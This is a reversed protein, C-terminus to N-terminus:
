SGAINEEIAVKHNSKGIKIQSIIIASFILICGVIGRSNLRERLILVGGICSFVSEMSMLIAAHSAKANKQAVVQLTYAVGVSLVGGYLIPIGANVIDSLVIEEMFLACVLNLIACTFFQLFSLQLPDVKKTVHDIVLIHATFAFASCLMLLDGFEMKLNENMSLLYLGVLALMVGVWTNAGTKQKFFMGFVPVLVIYLGTIFGAKSATTFPIGAQQLGAGLFLVCGVIIGARLTYSNLMKDNKNKSFQFLLLPLLSIAGLFFRAANFTFPRVLDAGVKQAVFAFGWLTATLLLLLNAKVQKNTM